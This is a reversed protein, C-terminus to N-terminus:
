QVTKSGGRLALVRDIQERLHMLGTEDASLVLTEIEVTSLILQSDVTGVEQAIGSHVLELKPPHGITNNPTDKGFARYTARILDRLMDVSFLIQTPKGDMEVTLVLGDVGEIRKIDLAPHDM